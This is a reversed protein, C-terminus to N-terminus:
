SRYNYNSCSTTNRLGSKTADPNQVGFEVGTLRERSVALLQLGPAVAPDDWEDPSSRSVEPGPAASRLGGSEPLYLPLLM